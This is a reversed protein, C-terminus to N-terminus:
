RNKGLLGLYRAKVAEPISNGTKTSTAKGTSSFKIWLMQGELKAKGKEQYVYNGSLFAEHSKGDIVASNARINPSAASVNGPSILIGAKPFAIAFGSSISKVESTSVNLPGSLAMRDSAINWEIKSATINQAQSTIITANTANLFAGDKVKIYSAKITIGNVNDIVTGGQSMTTVGDADTEQDGNAQIVLGGQALAISLFLSSLSLIVKKVDTM